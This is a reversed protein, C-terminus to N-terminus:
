ILTVFNISHTVFISPIKTKFNWQVLIESSHKTKEIFHRHKETSVHPCQLSAFDPCSAHLQLLPSFAQLYDDRGLKEETGTPVSPPM